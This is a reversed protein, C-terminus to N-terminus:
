VEKGDPIAIVKLGDGSSRVMVRARSFGPMVSGDPLLLPVVGEQARGVPVVPAAPAERAEWAAAQRTLTAVRSEWGRGFTAYSSLSRLFALRLQLFQRWDRTRALFERARGVGSNVATDFAVLALPAPLADAGLARWYREQYIRRADDLTLSRIDLTPNAHAAIGWKTGRLEGKGIIGTTWNGRDRPDATYGGEHGIIIKFAENFDPKM